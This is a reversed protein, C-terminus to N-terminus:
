AENIVWEFNKVTTLNRLSTNSLKRDRVELVIRIAESFMDNILATKTRDGMNLGPGIQIETLWVNLDNDMIFDAGYLGFFNGREPTDRLQPLTAKVVTALCEKAKSRVQDELFNNANIKKSKLLSEQFESFTWKLVINPDYDVHKKQQHVNLVHIHTNDYDGLEFEKSALRVTGEPYLLVILPDLSAILWYMRLESKKGELLLCNKLYRQIIYNKKGHGEVPLKSHEDEQLKKYLERLKWVVKIGVGKSLSTPKLIWLNDETDVKPIQQFFLERDAQVFLRYTEPYFGNVLSARGPRQAYGRLSTALKGKDTMQGEHPIHNIWQTACLRSMVTHYKKRLWILDAKRYYEKYCVETMGQFIKAANTSIADWHVKTTDKLTPTKLDTM